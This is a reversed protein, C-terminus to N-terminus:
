EYKRIAFWSNTDPEFYIKKEQGEVIIRYEVPAVCPVVMPCYNRIELIKTIDFTREGFLIKKPKIKGSKFFRVEVDLSIRQYKKM